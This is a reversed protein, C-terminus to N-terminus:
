IDRERSKAQGAGTHEGDHPKWAVRKLLNREFSM